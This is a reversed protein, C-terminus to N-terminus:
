ANDRASHRETKFIPLISIEFAMWSEEECREVVGCRTIRSGLAGGTGDKMHLVPHVRFSLRTYYLTRENTSRHQTNRTTGGANHRMPTVVSHKCDHWSYTTCALFRIQSTRHISWTVDFGSDRWLHRYIVLGRWTHCLGLTDNTM